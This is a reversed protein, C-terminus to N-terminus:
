KNLAKEKQKEMKRIERGSKDLHFGTKWCNWCWIKPRLIHSKKKPIKPAIHSKSFDFSSNLSLLYKIKTNDSTMGMTQRSIKQETGMPQIRIKGAQVYKNLGAKLKKIRKYTLEETEEIDQWIVLSNINEDFHLAIYKFCSDVSYPMKAYDTSKHKFYISPFTMKLEGEILRDIGAEQGHLGTSIFLLLIILKSFTRM